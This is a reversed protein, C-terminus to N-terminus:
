PHFVGDFPGKPVLDLDDLEELKNGSRAAFKKAAQSVKLAADLYLKKDEPAFGDDDLKDLVPKVAETAQAVEPIETETLEELLDEALLGWADEIREVMLASFDNEDTATALSRLSTELDILQALVFLVRKRGAANRGAAHHLADTWLTAVEANTQRDLFFNHRVEGLAKKVFEFGDGHDHGAEALAENSVVHCDFCRKVLQYANASRFQAAKECADTRQAYHEASEGERRTGRPGYVAHANLWGDEGGSANHCAECSVGSLIHLRGVEDRQQTAHCTTCLSNRAIDEPRIGLKKAYELSTPATRLLDFARTAHKSAQWAKIERAHCDVCKAHGEIRSPDVVSASVTEAPAVLEQALSPQQWRTVALGGLGCCFVSAVLIANRLIPSM